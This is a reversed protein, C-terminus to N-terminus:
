FTSDPSMGWIYCSSSLITSNPRRPLVWLFRLSSYVWVNFHNISINLLPVTIAPSTLGSSYLMMPDPPLPYIFLLCTLNYQFTLVFKSVNLLNLAPWSTENNIVWKKISINMNHKLAFGMLIKICFNTLHM